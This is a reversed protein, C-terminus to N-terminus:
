QKKLRQEALRAEIQDLASNDIKDIMKQNVLGLYEELTLNSRPGFDRAVKEGVYRYHWPEFVYGTIHEKNEPYRLIFGYKYANNWLWETAPSSYFMRAEQNIDFALGTQHESQGERASYRSAQLDTSHWQQFVLHQDVYGRYGSFAILTIGEKAADQSMMQFAARAELNEGPAYSEDVWHLKSVIPLGNIILPKSLDKRQDPTEDALMAYDNLKRLYDAQVATCTVPTKRTPVEMVPSKLQPVGPLLTSSIEDTVASEDGTTDNPSYPDEYEDLKKQLEAVQSQLEALDQDRRENLERFSDLREILNERESSLTNIRNRLDTRSKFSIILLALSFLLLLALIPLLHSIRTSVQVSREDSTLEHVPNPSPRSAPIRDQRYFESNKRSRSPREDYDYYSSSSAPPAPKSSPTRRPKHAANARQHSDHM